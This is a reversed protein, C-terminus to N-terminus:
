RSFSRRRRMPSQPSGRSARARALLLATAIGLALTISGGGADSRAGTATVACGTPEDLSQVKTEADPSPTTCAVSSLPGLNGFADRAAVAVVHNAGNELPGTFFVSGTSGVVSGCELAPDADRGPLLSTGSCSELSSSRECFATVSSTTDLGSVSRIDVRARGNGPTVAARPPDPGITDAFIELSKTAVPSSYDAPSFMLIQVVVTTLDVSGCATEEATPSVLKRVPVDVAIDAQLPLNGDVLRWCMGAEADRNPASKCDAGTSAWIQVVATPEFGSMQIPFRIRQDDRCDQGNIAEPHLFLPRKAVAQGNADLRPLSNEQALTLVQASARSTLLLSLLFFAFAPIFSSRRRSMRRPGGLM